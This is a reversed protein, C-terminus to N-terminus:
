LLKYGAFALVGIVAPRLVFCGIGSMGAIIGVLLGAVTLRLDLAPGPKSV